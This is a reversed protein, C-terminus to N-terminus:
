SKNLLPMKSVLSSVTHNFIQQLNILITDMGEKWSNDQRSALRCFLKTGGM